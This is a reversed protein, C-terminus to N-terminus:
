HKQQRIFPFRLLMAERPQPSHLSLYLGNSGVAVGEPELGFPNLDIRQVENGTSLDLVHLCYHGAEDGDPLFAHGRYVLSGQAVRVCHVTTEHLLLSDGLTVATDASSPLAFRKLFLPAGRRGGYAYLHGHEADICWDQAFTSHPYLIRQVLQASRKSARYVLCAKDGFCSSVYLLPRRGPGFSANNCHTSNLPLQYCSAFRKRRLDLVLCQGGHRLLYAHRGRIALGQLSGHLRLTDPLCDGLRQVVVEAEGLVAQGKLPSLCALLLCLLLLPRLTM